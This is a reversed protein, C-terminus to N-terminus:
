IPCCEFKPKRKYELHKPKIELEVAEQGVNAGAQLIIDLNTGSIEDIGAIKKVKLKFKCKDFDFKAKIDPETGKPSHYKFKDKEGVGEIEFSGAPIFFEIVHGQGDDIVYKVDDVMLDIPEVPNFTGKINIDDGKKDDAVTKIKLHNIGFCSCPLVTVMVANPESDDVGDNVVLEIFHEGIPLDVTFIPGTPPAIDYERRWNSLDFTSLWVDTLAALEMFWYGEPSWDRALAAFDSQNIIGDSGTASFNNGDIAWSWVYSLKDGDPDYSGSGDLTVEAMGDWTCVLQDPGADAVPINNSVFTGEDSWESAQLGTDITKVSWYYTAGGLPLNNLRIGLRENSVKPRLYNGLLPSGYVGSVIDDKGSATGVRIHYYLGDTPTEEDYGSNWKLINSHPEPPLLTPPSAFSNPNSNGVSDAELNKYIKTMSSGVIYGSVVLDLDGDNDYDGWALDGMSVGELTAIIDTFTDDGNNRYVITKYNGCAAIDLDGDNDYDGWALSATHGGGIITAGIDTFNSDGNNKYIGLGNGALDLDGDNDYDGWALTIWSKGPLGANIDTFTDDGNNRYISTINPAGVYGTTSGCIALDLDGDNDYDGWALSSYTVGTIGADVETFTDDSNNRYIKAFCGSGSGGSFALDLDGDNDYDGWAMSSSSGPPLIVGIDTFVDFGDNRYIRTSSNGNIVFDLDGDNDYDGWAFTGFFATQPLATAIESFIGSGNNKYIKSSRQGCVALDLDGDNDYDGWAVSSYLTGTLSIESDIFQPMSFNIYVGSGVNTETVPHSSTGFYQWVFFLYTSGATVPIHYTEVTDYAHQSGQWIINYDQTAMIAGGYRYFRAPNNRNITAYDICLELPTGNPYNQSEEIYLEGEVYGRAWSDPFVGPSGGPPWMRQFLTVLTISNLSRNIVTGGAYPALSNYEQVTGSETTGSLSYVVGATRFYSDVQGTYEISIPVVGSFGVNGLFVIHIALFVYVRTKEKEMFGRKM